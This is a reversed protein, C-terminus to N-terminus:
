RLVRPANVVFNRLYDRYLQGVTLGEPLDARLDLFASHSDTVIWAHTIEDSRSEVYAGFASAESEDFLVAYTSDEPASWASKGDWLEWSGVSGAAMWLLPAIAEYQRGLEVLDPELYDM